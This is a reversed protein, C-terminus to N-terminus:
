VAVHAEGEQVLGAEVLGDRGEAESRLMGFVIGGLAQRPCVDAPGQQLCALGLLGNGLEVLCNGDFLVDGEAVLQKTLREPRQAALFLGKDLVPAGDLEVGCGRLGAVLEPEREVKFAPDLLREDLELFGHAEGGAHGIRM